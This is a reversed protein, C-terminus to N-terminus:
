AQLLGRDLVNALPGAPVTELQLLVAAPVEDDADRCARTPFSRRGDDELPVQVDDALAIGRARVVRRFPADDEDAVAIPQGGVPRGEAGVIANCDRRHHRQDLVLRQRM